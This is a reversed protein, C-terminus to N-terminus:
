TPMASVIYEPRIVNDERQLARKAARTVLQELDAAVYGETEAAVDAILEDPVTHRREALQARLIKARSARDPQGIEIKQDIRGARMGAVDISELRNTAGIFVINYEGTNELHGLFENVVKTDEAHADGKGARQKLVSDVEDVFIIAGGEAAAISQAENFLTHVQEASENIWKSNIASGTLIVAPYDLESSLARALYTKGTGPPGYFLINSPTVGLDAARESATLPLIVERQLKSKVNSLGGVDDFCVGTENQWDYDLEAYNIEHTGRQDSGDAVTSNHEYKEPQSAMDSVAHISGRKTAQKVYEPDFEPENDDDDSSVENPEAWLILSMIGTPAAVLASSVLPTISVLTTTADPTYFLLEVATVAIAIVVGCLGARGVGTYVASDASRDRGAIEIIVVPIALVLISGLVVAVGALGASVPWLVGGLVPDTLQAHLWQGGVRVFCYTVIGGVVVALGVAPSHKM